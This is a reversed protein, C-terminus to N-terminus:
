LETRKTEGFPNFGALNESRVWKSNPRQQSFHYDASSTKEHLVADCGLEIPRDHELATKCMMKCNPSWETCCHKSNIFYRRLVAGGARKTAADGFLSNSTLLAADSYGLLFFDTFSRFIGEEEVWDSNPHIHSPLGMHESDYTSVKLMEDAEVLKKYVGPNDSTIFFRLEPRVDPDAQQWMAIACEIFKKEDGQELHSMQMHGKKTEEDYKERWGTRIAVGVVFKNEFKSLLPFMHDKVTHSPNLFASMVASEFADTGVQQHSQSEAEDRLFAANNGIADMDHCEVLTELAKGCLAGAKKADALDWEFPPEALVKKWSMKGGKSTNLNWDIFLMRGSRLAQGTIHALSYAADGLGAMPSWVMARVQDCIKNDQKAKALEGRHWSMYASVLEHPGKDQHQSLDFRAFQASTSVLLFACVVVAYRRMTSM